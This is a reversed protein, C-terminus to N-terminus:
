FVRTCNTTITRSSCIWLLMCVHNSIWHYFLLVCGTETGKSKRQLLVESRKLTFSLDLASFLCLLQKTTLQSTHAALLSSSCSPFSFSPARALILSHFLWHPFPPPAITSSFGSHTLWVTHAQLSSHCCTFFHFLTSSPTSKLCLPAQPIILKGLLFFLFSRRTKKKKGREAKRKLHTQM